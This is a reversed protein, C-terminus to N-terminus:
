YTGTDTDLATNPLQALQEFIRAEIECPMFTGGINSSEVTIHGM